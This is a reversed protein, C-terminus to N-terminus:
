VGMGRILKVQNRALSADFRESMLFDFEKQRSYYLPDSLDLGQLGPHCMILGGDESESLFKQFYAELDEPTKAKFGYIGSFSTNHAIAKQTLWRELPRAGSYRIVQTKADRWSSGQVNWVSRVYYAHDKFRKQLLAQLAARIRPFHHIHQHGDIFDPLRGFAKVFQDLQREFEALISAVTFRHLFASLLLKGVSPLRRDPMLGPIQGLAYGHTLNLHLGIDILTKCSQLQLAAEWFDRTTVLCSTATIRSARVLKLIGQSIEANQGFDDACLIIQKM